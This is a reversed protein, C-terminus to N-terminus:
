IDKSPEDIEDIKKDLPGILCKILYDGFSFPTDTGRNKQVNALVSYYDDTVDVGDITRDLKDLYTTGIDDDTIKLIQIKCWKPKNELVSKLEAIEEKGGDTEGDTAFLIILKKGKQFNQNSAIIDRIARALPVSYGKPETPFGKCLDDANRIGKLAENHNLFHVDVSDTITCALDIVVECTNRLETWRTSPNTSSTHSPPAGPGPKVITNMSSSDDCILVIKCQQDNLSLKFFFDHRITYRNCLEKFHARQIETSGFYEFPKKDFIDKKNWAKDWKTGILDYIQKNQAICALHLPVRGNKDAEQLGKKDCSILYEIVYTNVKNICALHLPLSGHIDKISVGNNYKTHLLKVLILDSRNMCALHLPLRDNCDQKKVGEPYNTLLLMALDIKNASDNMCSLHLHLPLRSEKDTYSASEPFRELLLTVLDIKNSCENLCALHLPLRGDQDTVKIAEPYTNLLHKIEDINVNTAMCARHLPLRGYKDPTSTILKPTEKLERITLPSTTTISISEIRVPNPIILPSAPSSTKTLIVDKMPNDYSMTTETNSTDLKISVSNRQTSAMQFTQNSPSSVVNDQSPCLGTKFSGNFTDALQEGGVIILVIFYFFCAIIFGSAWEISSSKDGFGVCILVAVQLVLVFFLAPVFLYIPKMSGCYRNFLLTKSFSEKIDGLYVFTLVLRIVDVILLFVAAGLESVLRFLVAIQGLYSLLYGLYEYGVVQRDSKEKNRYLVTQKRFNNTGVLTFGVFVFIYFGSLIWISQHPMEYFLTSPESWLVLQNDSPRSRTLFAELCIRFLIPGLFDISASILGTSLFAMCIDYGASSTLSEATMYTADLTKLVETKANYVSFCRHGILLHKMFPDNNPDKKPTSLSVAYLDKKLLTSINDLFSSSQSGNQFKDITNIVVTKLRKDLNETFEKIADKFVADADSALNKDLKKPDLKKRGLKKGDLKQDNKCITEFIRASHLHLLQPNEKDTIVKFSEQLKHFEADTVKKDFVNENCSDEYVKKLSNEFVNKLSNTINGSFNSKEEVFASKILENFDDSDFIKITSYKEKIKRSFDIRAKDVLAETPFQPKYIESQRSLLNWFLAGFDILCVNIWISSKILCINIWISSKTDYQVKFFRKSLICLYWGIIVLFTTLWRIDFSWGPFACGPSILEFGFPLSFIKTFDRFFLPLSILNLSSLLVLRQYLDRFLSTTSLNLIGSVEQKSGHVEYISVGGFLLVSVQNGIFLRFFLLIMFAVMCLGIVVSVSTTCPACGDENKYYGAVCTECLLGSSGSACRKGLCMNPLRCATAVAGDCYFGPNCSLCASGNTQTHIECSSCFTSNIAAEGRGLCRDCTISRSIKSITGPLCSRCFSSGSTSFTGPPCDLCSSSSTSGIMTSATGAGCDTCVYSGILGERFRGAPCPPSPSTSSTTTASSSSTASSSTTPLASRSPQSSTSFSPLSTMSPLSSISSTLTPNSSMSPISSMSSTSTPDSSQSSHPTFTPISPAASNSASSSMSSSLSPAASMSPLSSMSSTLTPDSSQSSIPTFTPISPAASLSPLSSRSSSSSPVSSMTSIASTTPAASMSSRASLSPIASKTAISTVISTVSPIASTTPAASMSSRASLSPGSSKSATATPSPPPRPLQVVESASLSRSFIRIDSISGTYFTSGIGGFGIQLKSTSASSISFSASTSSVQVGDIYTTFISTSISGTYTLAVHHWSSDCVPLPPPFLTTFTIKRICDNTADAVYINGSSDISLGQPDSFMVNTGIGDSLGFNGSGALITVVGSSTIKRIIHNNTDAVYINGSIDVAIGRPDSLAVYLTTTVVGSTIKRICSNHTDAVYVIGSSDVAIGFPLYFMSNTGTGDAFGATGSGALTTVVGSSTIKRICHNGMDAVYVNGSSDIVVGTPSAFRATTVTGDSFGYVTGAFTTVVGSSTIKRIRHNNLDAVYVNGSTDCTLGYPSDFKSNTGTGDTLGATGSGALTTVVGSSTIKRIRHNDTDAVYINGSSGVSVGSPNFFRANTGTADLSRTSGALTTVIGSSTIKRIRINFTDAVYFNGFADLSLGLPGNFLANVGTGDSYGAYGSGALTNMVGSTTLKLIRHNNSDSIFLNGSTDVTIGYSLIMFVTSPSSVFFLNSSLTTVVGSPTIKRLRSSFIDSVYVNGLSDVAIGHPNYFKANIGTGDSTGSIGSGALTSEVGSSTIKRIRNNYTDAVYITGSIDVAIGIPFNLTAYLTIVVGTSTIKRIIHNNTDAVYVNGSSDCSIGMPSSFMANTGTGDTLGATGSGALTTVVGSSTIKRIRHNYTDAVYINGSFSDFVIGNPGNFIAYIGLGDAFSGWISGAITSTNAILLVTGPSTVELSVANLNSSSGIAGWSVVVGSPNASTYDLANCKVWSSVSFASSGTPLSNLLPTSIYSGRSLVLATSPFSSVSSYYNIGSSVVINSFASISESQSGSLYFSSDIPGSNSASSPRCGLSSSIFTTLGIPCTSCTLSGSYSYSNSPCSQCTSSSIAGSSSSYTGAPCPTCSISGSLSYTGTGCLTCSLTSSSSSSSSGFYGANCSCITQASNCTCDFGSICGSNSSSFTVTQSPTRTSTAFIVPTPSATVSPCQNSYAAFYSSSCSNSTSCVGISSSQGCFYCTSQSACSICNNDYVSCGIPSSSASVVPSPSASASLPIPVFALGRFETNTQATTLQSPTCSSTCSASVSFLKTTTTFYLLTEDPSLAIGTVRYVSSSSFIKTMSYDSITIGTYIGDDNIGRLTVICAWFRDEASNTIIQKSSYPDNAMQASNGLSLTGSTQANLFYDIYPYGSVSRLLYLTGSQSIGCGTYPSLSTSITRQNAISNTSGDTVFGVAITSSNGLIWGGSSDKACVAKLVGDYVTNSLSTTYVTESSDIRVIARANSGYPSSTSVSTGTSALMGGFYLNSKDASLSLSGQTYDTGSLTVGSILTSSVPTSSSSPNIEVLYVPAYNSSLLTGIGPTGVRLLILNDTTWGLSYYPFLYVNIVLFTYISKIM